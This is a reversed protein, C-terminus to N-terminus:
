TPVAVRGAGTRAGALFPLVAEALRAPQEENPLHGAEPILAVEAGAIRQRFAEAYGPSAIKDSEGWVILTPAAIRHLRKALGRNPIPWLYKAATAMSKAREVHYAIMADGETPTEAAAVAVASAPDHYLAASLVAPTMAFFDQVPDDQLWLGMPAVLVLASFRDPQVAALEAAFMGGLGHGVLPLNRLGLADLFDLYYYVLDPVDGLQDTGTSEGYGPHLPAIVHCQEALADLFPTWTARGEGHLYLVPDGAGAEWVEISFAGNRVSVQRKQM